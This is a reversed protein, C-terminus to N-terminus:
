ELVAQPLLLFSLCNRLLESLLRGGFFPMLRGLSYLDRDKSVHESSSLYLDIVQEFVM